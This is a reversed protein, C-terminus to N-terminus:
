EDDELGEPTITITNTSASSVDALWEPMTAADIVGRALLQKLGESVNKGDFRLKCDWLQDQPASALPMRIKVQFREPGILRNNGFKATVKRARENVVSADVPQIRRSAERGTVYKSPEQSPWKSPPALPNADVENLRYQSWPGQSDRYLTLQYLSSIHKSKLDQEWLTAANFTEVLVQLVFQKVDPRINSGCLITDSGPFHVLYINSSNLPINPSTDYFSIRIWITPTEERTKPHLTCASVYIHCRSFYATFHRRMRKQLEAPEMHLHLDPRNEDSKLRWVRWTRGTLYRNQLWVLDLMAVQDHTLGKPWDLTIIGNAVNHVQSQRLLEYDALTGVELSDDDDDDDAKGHPLTDTNRFWEEVVSLLTEKTHKGLLRRLSDTWPVLTPQHRTTGAQLM